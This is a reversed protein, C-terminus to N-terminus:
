VTQLIFGGTDLLMLSRGVAIAERNALQGSAPPNGSPGAQPFLEESRKSCSQFPSFASGALDVSTCRSQVGAVKNTRNRAFYRFMLTKGSARSSPHRSSSHYRSTASTKRCGSQRSGRFYLSNSILGFPWHISRFMKLPPFSSSRLLSLRRTTCSAGAFVHVASSAIGIS